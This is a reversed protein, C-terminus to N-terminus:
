STYTTIQGLLQIPQASSVSNLIDFQGKEWSCAHGNSFTFYIQCKHVTYTWNLRHMQLKILIQARCM